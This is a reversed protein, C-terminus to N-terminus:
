LKNLQEMTFAAQRNEFKNRAQVVDEATVKEAKNSWSNRIFSILQAVEEDSLKKNAGIGPMDGNIEPAQYLKGSVKIPGTLGYLVIPILKEKDGVVWNSKNLPPALSKVGNGDAGHCGQCTNKFLVYGKPFEQEASKSKQSKERDKVDYLVKRLQTNIALSSDANFTLADKLFSEEKNHLSSIAADAVFENASYQQMLKNLLSNAAVGDFTRVTQVLFAVYPAALTDNQVLLQKLVPVYVSYNEKSMVSPLVSLAQTRIHWDKHQLLPVVDTTQLEGLGELTWVSHIVALPKDKLKLNQRLFTAVQTYKNDVLLQQAKDRVWGNPHKLLKILLLPNNIMTISSVAKEKPIIRYIRGCSIPQSLKRSKIENALYETLFFEHQIIGRYMDIVYLAGDPGNYLSVPRFREDVSTLFERDKYAQKGQVKYGKEELINRKILNAAPEAVFANLYYDKGFLEGRYLVPACAATFNVLRLQEDLIGELYGRNVGPTPRAPYVRNDPVINENFGAVKRQNSNGAGMGPSFYDGLLNQSNNNYYLRGYDDQAVGWQGRFHTKETLWKDGDKRYRKSSKANYIWNDLARVLGNAEHEVNGGESYASDVLTRRGPRDDEIEYFWLNPPEAVMIGNEVFCLARPLVLSDLFVKRDDITGDKDKDELIVIKGTPKDEDTGLTDPMYGQMESVWMRGNNDFVMAVPSNVFPEAAVLQVEFGEEVQMRELSEEPSLVPSAVYAKRIAM